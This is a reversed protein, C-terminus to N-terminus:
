YKENLKDGLEYLDNLIREHPVGNDLFYEKSKLGNLIGFFTVNANKSLIFDDIMDGVYIVNNKDPFLALFKSFNKIDYKTENSTCGEFHEFFKLIQLQELKKKLSELDRASYCGLKNSKSLKLLFEYLRDNKHNATSKPKPLNYNDLNLNHYKLFIDKLNLTSNYIMEKKSIPTVNLHKTITLYYKRVRYFTIHLTNDFDFIITLM